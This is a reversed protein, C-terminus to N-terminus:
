AQDPVRAFRAVVRGDGATFELLGGRVRWGRVKELVAMYEEELRMFEPTGAMKTAMLPGFNLAAGARVYTGGFNNVAAHGSVRKTTADFRVSPHRPNNGAAVPRGNIEVLSWATGELTDDAPTATACGALGLGLAFLMAAIFKM